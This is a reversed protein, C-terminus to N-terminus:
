QLIGRRTRNAKQRKGRAIHRSTGTKTRSGLDNNLNRQVNRDDLNDSALKIENEITKLYNEFHDRTVVDVYMPMLQGTIPSITRTELVISDIPLISLKGSDYDAEYLMGDFVIVPFYFLIDRRDDDFNAKLGEVRYNVFKSLKSVSDFIADRESLCGKEIDLVAFTGAIHGDGYHFGLIDTLHGNSLWAEIYNCRNRPSHYPSWCSHPKHPFGLLVEQENQM